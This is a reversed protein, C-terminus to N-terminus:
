RPPVFYRFPKRYYRMFEAIDIVDVRSEGTEMRSLRSQPIRMARAAVMQTVGKRERAARLRVLFQKYRVTHLNRM